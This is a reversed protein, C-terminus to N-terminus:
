ALRHDVAIRGIERACVAAGDIPLTSDVVPQDLLWRLPQSWRGARFDAQSILKLLLQAPAERVFIEDERFNLRPPCLLRKHAAICESVAGYGFKSVVVDAANLVDPFALESSLTVGIENPQGADAADFHLFVMDPNAIAATARVTRLEHVGVGSNSRLWQALRDKNASLCRRPAAM